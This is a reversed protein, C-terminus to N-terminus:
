SNVHCITSRAVAACFFDCNCGCFYKGASAYMGKTRIVHRVPDLNGSGPKQLRYVIM